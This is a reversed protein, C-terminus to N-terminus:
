QLVLYKSPLWGKAGTHPGSIIEIMSWDTAGLSPFKPHHVKKSALLEAKTNEHITVRDPGPNWKYFEEVNPTDLLTAPHNQAKIRFHTNSNDVQNNNGITVPGNPNNIVIGNNDDM